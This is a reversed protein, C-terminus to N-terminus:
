WSFHRVPRQTSGACRTTIGVASVLGVVGLLPAELDARAVARGTIAAARSARVAALALGLCRHAVAPAVGVVPPRWEGFLLAQSAVLM